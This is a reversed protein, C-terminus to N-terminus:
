VHQLHRGRRPAILPGLDALQHVQIDFLKGADHAGPVAHGAIPAVVPL